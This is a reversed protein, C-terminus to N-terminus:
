GVATGPLENGVAPGVGLGLVQVVQPSAHDLMPMLHIQYLRKPRAKSFNPSLLRLSQPVLKPRALIQCDEGAESRRV